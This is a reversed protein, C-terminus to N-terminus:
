EASRVRRPTAKVSGHMTSTGNLDIDELKYYYTRRNKVGNDVYQYTAGSTASGEAPILSLNIKVYGSDASESRYLNFGANDIESETTWELIVAKDSPTATFSSLIILTTEGYRLIVGGSGMYGWGGVAFIDIDSTGWIGGLSMNFFEDKYIPEMFSWATGDYHLIPGPTPVFRPSRVAFVNTGSTGWIDTIWGDCYPPLIMPSWNNGDYHLMAYWGSTFVDTGSTGWINLLEFGTGGAMPSWTSGDYHLVLGDGVVFVDSGSTGWVGNLATPCEYMTSWSNGDYHLIVDHDSWWSRGGVAFVDSGSSGWVKRLDFPFAGMGSWQTGNYHFINTCLVVNGYDDIGCDATIGVAFVDSGSSGWVGNLVWPFNGMSSWTTGDYHFIIGPHPQYFVYGLMGGGVVFIDAGSTGWIDMLANPTTSMISWTPECKGSIPTFQIIFLILFLIQILKKYEM